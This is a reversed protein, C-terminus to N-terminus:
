GAAPRRGLAVFIAGGLAGGLGLLLWGAADRAAAIVTVPVMQGMTFLAAWVAVFGALPFLYVRLSPRRRTLWYAVPFAVLLGLAMVAGWTPAFHVLDHGIVGLRDDWALPQYISAIASISHWSQVLSGVVTAAVVATLWAVLIRWM